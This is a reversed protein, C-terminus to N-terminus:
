KKVGNKRIVSFTVGLIVFAIGADILLNKVELHHGAADAPYAKGSKSDKCSGILYTQTIYRLPMGRETPRLETDQMGVYCTLSPGKFPFVNAFFLIAALSLLVGWKKSM